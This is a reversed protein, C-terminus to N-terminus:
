KLFKFVSDSMPIVLENIKNKKSPSNQSTSFKTFDEWFILWFKCSVFIGFKKISFFFVNAIM